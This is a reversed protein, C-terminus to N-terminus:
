VEDEDETYYTFKWKANAGEELDYTALVETGNKHLRLKYDAESKAPKSGDLETYKLTTECWISREDEDAGVSAQIHPYAFHWYYIESGDVTNSGYTERTKFSETSDSDPCGPGKLAVIDFKWNYPLIRVPDSQPSPLASVTGLIALSLILSKM